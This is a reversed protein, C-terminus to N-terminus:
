TSGGQHAIPAPKLPNDLLDYTLRFGHHFPTLLHIAL